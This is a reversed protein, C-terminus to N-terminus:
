EVARDARRALLWLLDALRNLYVPIQANTLLGSERLGCVSREARRCITRALDLAAGVPTAGAFAWGSQPKAEAELEAIARDLRGVCDRTIQPHADRAYQALDEPATALEAMLGVLENQFSRLRTDADGPPTARAVGLAASLEDVDGCASIRPDSKPVRRGYMLSTVGDDGQRTAISM